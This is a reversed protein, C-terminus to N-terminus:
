KEIYPPQESNSPQGHCDFGITLDCDLLQGKEGHLASNQLFLRLPM